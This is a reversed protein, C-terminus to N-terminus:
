NSYSFGIAVAQLLVAACWPSNTRYSSLKSCFLQVCFLSNFVAAVAQCLKFCSLHLCLLWLSILVVLITQCLKSCFLQVCFHNQILKFLKGCSTVLLLQYRNAYRKVACSAAFVFTIWSGNSCSAVAHFFGATCFLTFKFLQLRKVYSPVPCNCVLSYILVAAVAQWLKSFSLQFCSPTFWFLQFRNGCSPPPCSCM